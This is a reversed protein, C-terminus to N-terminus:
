SQKDDTVETHDSCWEDAGAPMYTLDGWGKSVNRNVCHSYPREVARFHRCTACTATTEIKDAM